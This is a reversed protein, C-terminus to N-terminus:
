EHTDDLPPEDFEGAVEADTMGTLNQEGYHAVEDVEAPLTAIGGSGNAYVPELQSVSAAPTLPALEQHVAAIEAISPADSVDDDEAEATLDTPVKSPVLYAALLAAGVNIAQEIQTDVPIALKTLAYTLAGVILGALVKNDIDLAARKM